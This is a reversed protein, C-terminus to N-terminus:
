GNKKTRAFVINVSYILRGRLGNALATDYYSFGSFFDIGSTEDFSSNWVNLRQRLPHPLRQAEVDDKPCVHRARAFLDVAKFVRGVSRASIKAMSVKPCFAEGRAM